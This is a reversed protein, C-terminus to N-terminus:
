HLSSFQCQPVLVYMSYITAFCTPQKVKLAFKFEHEGPEISKWSNIAYAIYTNADILEFVSVVVYWKKGNGM